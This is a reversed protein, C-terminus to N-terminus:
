YCNGKFDGCRRCGAHEPPCPPTTKEQRAKEAEKMLYAKAYGSDIFDWPLTEGFNRARGYVAKAAPSKLVNNWGGEDFAQLILPAVRRGGASLLGQLAANRGSEIRLEMNSERGLAKQLRAGKKKLEPLPAVPEWQFPTQAKPVFPNIGVTVKGARGHQKSGQVLEDRIKRALQVLADIDEDREGPLGILFYCKVNLIGAGAAIRVTDLIDADAMQKNVANRLRESGAEPAITITKMGGAALAALTEATVYEVRLSSVNIGGGKKLIHDYVENIAPYECIASGILGIREKHALARDIQGLLVDKDVHRVPRYLFGSACFRCGQGCGKGTELLHAGRFVGPDLELIQESGKRGFGPDYLRKVREPAGHAVREAVAGNEDEAVDYLAPVYVGAIQAIARLREARPKDSTAALTAVLQPLALEGEGLVLFDFFPAFPEPNMTPVIGGACVLPHREDRQASLLPIGNEKLMRLLNLIDMEFTLSFAALHYEGLGLGASTGESPMFCADVRCLAEFAGYIKHFGLYSAGVAASNPYILATAFSANGGEAPGGSARTEPKM